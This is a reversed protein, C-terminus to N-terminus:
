EQDNWELSKGLDRMTLYKIQFNRELFDIFENFKNSHFDWSHALFVLLPYRAQALMNRINEQWKKQALRKLTEMNLVQFDLSPFPLIRFKPRNLNSVPIQWLINSKKVEGPQRFVPSSSDIRFDYESLLDLSQQDIIMNPARFSIPKPLGLKEFLSLSKKLERKKEQLSLQRNKLFWVPNGWLRHHCYGHLGIEHKGGVWKKIETKVLPLIEGQIFFTAPKDGLSQGLKNFFAKIKKVGKKGGSGGDSEIDFTLAVFIKKRQIMKKKSFFLNVQKWWMWPFRPDKLFDLWRLFFM